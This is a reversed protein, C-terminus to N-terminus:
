LTQDNERCLRVQKRLNSPTSVELQYSLEEQSLYKIHRYEKLIINFM